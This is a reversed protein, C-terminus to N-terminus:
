ILFKHFGSDPEAHLTAELSFIFGILFVQELEFHFLVAESAL